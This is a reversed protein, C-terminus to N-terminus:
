VLDFRLNRELIERDTDREEEESQVYFMGYPLLLLGGVTNTSQNLSWLTLLVYLKVWFSMLM